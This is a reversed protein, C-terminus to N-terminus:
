LLFADNVDYKSSLEIIERIYRAHYFADALLVVASDRTAGTLNDLGTSNISVIVATYNKEKFADIAEQLVSRPQEQNVSPLSTKIAPIAAKTKQSVEKLPPEISDIVSVTASDSM